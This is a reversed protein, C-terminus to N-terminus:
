LMQLNISYVASQRGTRSQFIIRGNQQLVNRARIVADRKLGSYLELVSLSANFESKWGTSNCIHMLAFWLARSSSSINNTILWDHFSNLEDIYRM